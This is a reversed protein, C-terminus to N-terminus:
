VDASDPLHWLLKSLSRRLTFCSFFISVPVDKTGECCASQHLVNVLAEILGWETSILLKQKEQQLFCPFSFGYHSNNARASWVILTQVFFDDWLTIQPNISTSIFTTSPYSGNTCSLFGYSRIKKEHKVQSASRYCRGSEASRGTEFHVLTSRLCNLQLFCFQSPLIWRGM